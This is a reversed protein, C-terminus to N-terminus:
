EGAEELLTAREPAWILDVRSGIDFQQTSGGEQRKVLLFNEGTAVRYRVADGLYIKEVVTGPWCNASGAGDGVVTMQLQEPRISVTATTGIAPSTSDRAWLSGSGVVDIHVLGGARETCRGTLLNSDGLFNAAFASRPANYIEAPTGVQELQGARMVVIRDSMTLAEEQDHTVYVVTVGLQRHIRKLEIQMQQRLKKDLAGLPEDMLLVRPEFVFARALAVRQQQGGSLQRPMREGMGALGVMELAADVRRRVDVRPVKRLRLPYGINAAVTMHPFLAYSQFVMGMHRRHPPTTSINRGGVLIQGSSPTLFGAIMMLITTKGSGSPGLLTLFEGDVIGLDVSDVAVVDGYQHRLQCLEVALGPPVASGNTTDDTRQPRTM